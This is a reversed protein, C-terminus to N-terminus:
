HSHVPATPIASGAFKDALVACTRRHAAAPHSRRDRADGGPHPLTGGIAAVSEPPRTAGDGGSDLTRRSDAPAPSSWSSGPTSRGTASRPGPRMLHGIPPYLNVGRIPTSFIHCGMDGLTGTGFSGSAGTAQTAVDKKYPRKESVGLWM